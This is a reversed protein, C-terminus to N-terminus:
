LAVRNTLAGLREVVLSVEDGAVLFDREQNMLSCNPHCGSVIIDGEGVPAGRSAESILEAFSWRMDALNGSGVVEGNLLMKVNLRYRAPGIERDQLEEPTVLFPGVAIGFDREKPTGIRDADRAAWVGVITFGLIAGLAEKNTLDWDDNALVAGVHLELDLKTVSPPPIIVEEPAKIAAVNGFEFAPREGRPAFADFFRITRPRGVASLLTIDEPKHTGLAREGDTEYVQGEHFIGTRPHSDDALSFRLLKL